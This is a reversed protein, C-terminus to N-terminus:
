DTRKTQQEYSLIDSLETFCLFGFEREYDQSIGTKLDEYLGKREDFFKCCQDWIWQAKPVNPHFKHFIDHAVPFTLNTVNEYREYEPTGEKANFSATLITRAIDHFFWAAEGIKEIPVDDLLGTKFWRDIIPTGHGRVMVFQCMVGEGSLPAVEPVFVEHIHTWQPMRAKIVEAASAKWEDSLEPEGPNTFVGDKYYNCKYHPGTKTTKCKSSDPEYIFGYKEIDEKTFLTM